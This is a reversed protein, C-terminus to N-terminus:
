KSLKGKKIQMIGNMCSNCAISNTPTKSSNVIVNGNEAPRGCLTKNSGRRRAHHQATVQQRQKYGWKSSM